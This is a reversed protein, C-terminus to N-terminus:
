KSRSVSKVGNESFAYSGDDAQEAARCVINFAYLVMRVPNAHGCRPCPILRLTVRDRTFSPARDGAFEYDLSFTRLCLECTRMKHEPFM